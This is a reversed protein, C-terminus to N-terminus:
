GQWFTEARKMAIRINQCGVPNASHIHWEIPALKGEYARQEIYCAVDYGTGNESEGLDHDFSILAIRGTDLYAKAEQATWARVHYGTPMPRVDDLWLWLDRM